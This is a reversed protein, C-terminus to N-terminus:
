QPADILFGIVTGEVTTATGTPAIMRPARGAKVFAVIPPSGVFSFGVRQMVFDVAVEVGAKVTNSGVFTAIKFPATGDADTVKMSVQKVVLLKGAPVQQFAVVCFSGVPCSDIGSDSYPTGESLVNTVTVPLPLPDVITVPAAGPTPAAQAFPASGPTPATQAFSEISISGLAAAFAAVAYSTRKPLKSM